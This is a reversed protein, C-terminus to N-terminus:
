DVRVRFFVKVKTEDITRKARSFFQLINSFGGGYNPDYDKDCVGCKSGVTEIHVLTSFDAILEAGCNNCEISLKVEEFPIRVDKQGPM